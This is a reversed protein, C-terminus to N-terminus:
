SEGNTRNRFLEVAKVKIQYTHRPLDDRKEIIQKEQATLLGCTLLITLATAVANLFKM